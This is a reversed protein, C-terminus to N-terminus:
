KKLFFYKRSKVFDSINLFSTIAVVRQANVCWFILAAVVILLLFMRHIFASWISHVMREQPFEFLKGSGYSQCQLVHGKILALFKFCVFPHFFVYYYHCYGFVFAVHFSIKLLNGM